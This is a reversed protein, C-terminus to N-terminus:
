RRRGLARVALFACVAGWAGVVAYSTALNEVPLETLAARVIDAMHRLPLASNVSGLWAPMQEVPFLIPTFGFMAFVLLQTILRTTMPNTIAHSLALGIMTGTFATLLVAPVIDPTVALPLGDYRLVAVSLSVVVAPLGGILCVVYWAAASASHPVPLSAIFDFSHSVKQDAVLQPGLIMGTMVLNVVPVGTSVFLATSLPIDEFFLGFGLVFGVGSLVQVLALLVLWLRLSALHWAIMARFGAFWYAAGTRPELRAPALGAAAATTTM